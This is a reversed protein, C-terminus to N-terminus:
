EINQIQERVKEIETKLGIAYDSVMRDNAKSLITNAERNMEQAIFDLRRGVSDDSKMAERMGNVHSKLRVTEEDVCIKEAFITLETALVIDDLKRDGLLEKVKAMIKERYEKLIEPSREEILSVLKMIYDLKKEIDEQLHRGEAQKTDCFRGLAERIVERLKEYVREVDQEREEITIVEPYRLLSAATLGQELSFSEGAQKVAEAYERAVEEHYSIAIRNEVFSEYNIYLDIKGREAYKKVIGRIESEFANFKKPMKISLDFYRHNVSKIEATIKQEADILEYFGYGTMSKIM